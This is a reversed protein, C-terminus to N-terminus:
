SLVKKINEALKEEKFVKEKRIDGTEEMSIKEFKRESNRTPNHKHKKWVVAKKKIRKVM